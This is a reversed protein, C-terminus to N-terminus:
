CHKLNETYFDLAEKILSIRLYRVTKPAVKFPITKNNKMNKIALIYLSKQINIEYRLDKSPIQKNSKIKKLPNWLSKQMSILGDVFQSLQVTSRGKWNSHM